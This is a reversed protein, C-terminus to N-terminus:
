SVAVGKDSPVTVASSKYWDKYYDGSDYLQRLNELVQEFVQTWDSGVRFGFM